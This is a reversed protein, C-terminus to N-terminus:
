VLAFVTFGPTSTGGIDAFLGNACYIAAPFQKVAAITEDVAGGYVLTGSASTGDYLALRPNTGATCTFGYVICPGTIVQGDSTVRYPEAIPATQMVGLTQNEGALLDDFKARVYARGLDDLAMQDAGRPM